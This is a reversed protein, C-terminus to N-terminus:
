AATMGGDVTFAQGTAGSAEDSALFVAWAAIEDVTGLRGMPYRRGIHAQRGEADTPAGPALGAGAEFVREVLPTWVTGPCIANARIGERAYDVAVQRTLGIM